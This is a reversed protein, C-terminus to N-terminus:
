NILTDCYLQTNLSLSPILIVSYLYSYTMLLGEDSEKSEGDPFKSYWIIYLAVEVTVWILLGEVNYALFDIHVVEAIGGVQHGENM